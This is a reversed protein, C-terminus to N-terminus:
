DDFRCHTRAVRNLVDVDLGTGALTNGDLGALSSFAPPDDASQTALEIQRSFGQASLNVYCWKFIPRGDVVDRATAFRTGTHVVHGTLDITETKFFTFDSAAKLAAEFENVRVCDPANRGPPCWNTPTWPGWLALKAREYKERLEYLDAESLIVLTGIGLAFLGVSVLVAGRMIRSAATVFAARTM